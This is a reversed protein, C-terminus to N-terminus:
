EFGELGLPNMLAYGALEQTITPHLSAGDADAHANM